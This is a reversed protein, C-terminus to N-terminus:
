KLKFPMTLKFRAKVAKGKVKVPHFRWAKAYDIATPRLEAPGETAEVLEPLGQEDLTISLVVTGQLKKEKAERPYAPAPPQHRVKIRSFDLDTVGDQSAPAAPAPKPAPAKKASPAGQASLTVAGFLVAGALALALGQLPQVATHQPQFLRTIRSM